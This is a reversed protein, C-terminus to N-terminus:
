ISEQKFMKRPQNPDPQIKEITIWRANKMRRTGDVRTSEQKQEQIPESKNPNTLQDRILKDFNKKSM